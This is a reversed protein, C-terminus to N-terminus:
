RSTLRDRKDATNFVPTRFIWSEHQLLHPGAEFVTSFMAEVTIAAPLKFPPKLHEDFTCVCKVKSHHIVANNQQRSAWLVVTEPIQITGHIIKRSRSNLITIM